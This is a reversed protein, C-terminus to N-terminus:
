QEVEQTRKLFNGGAIGGHHRPAMRSDDGYCQEKQLLRRRFTDSSVDGQTGRNVILSLAAASATATVKDMQATLTLTEM